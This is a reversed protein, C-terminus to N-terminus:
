EVAGPNLCSRLADVAGRDRDLEDLIESLTKTNGSEDLQYKRAELGAQPGAASEHERAIAGGSATDAGQPAPRRESGRPPQDDAAAERHEAYNVEEDWRVGDDDLAYRLHGTDAVAEGLDRMAAAHVATELAEPPSTGGAVAKLAHELTPDDVAIGWENALAQLDDVHSAVWANDEEAKAREFVAEQDVDAYLPEGRLEQDIAVLLLRADPLQEYTVKRGPIRQGNFEPFYGAEVATQMADDLALGRPNILKREGARAAGRLKALGMSKLDGGVDNIGGRRALFEILTEPRRPLRGSSALRDILASAVRANQEAVEMRVDHELSEIQAQPGVGDARDFAKLAENDIPGGESIDAAAGRDPSGDQGGNGDRPYVPPPPANERDPRAPAKRVDSAKGYASLLWTRAEGDYDLRVAAKHDASKLIVRNASRSKVRMRAILEPLEAADVEPHDELVHALGFGDNAGPKTNSRGYPVDIPGIESHELAAPVVGTKLRQLTALTSEWDGSVEPFEPGFPGQSAAPAGGSAEPQGTLSAGTEESLPRGAAKETGNPLLGQDRYFALQAKAWDHDSDFLERKLVPMDAATLEAARDGGADREASLDLAEREADDAQRQLSAIDDGADAEIPAGQPLEGKHGLASMGRELDGLTEAGAAPRMFRRIYADLVQGADKAALVFKGGADGGNLESWLFELQQARSPNKGFRELLAAKRAGLWQGLGFAGSTPNVATHDGGRAEAAIGAAIGYAHADDLGKAKFFDVIDQPVSARGVDIPAGGSSVAISSTSSLLEGRQGDIMQKIADSLASGHAADGAPGPEFPSAEGTEQVTEITDAAAREEPTMHERLTSRAFGALERNDMDALVDRLLVDGVKMRSAWRSQISEPMAKFILPPLHETGLHVAGGFAGGVIAGGIVQGAADGATLEEGNEAMNRAEVPLQGATLIGNILADRGIAQVVTSATGGGIALTPIFAPEHQANETFGAALGAVTRGVMGGRALVAAGAARKDAQQKEFYQHLGEVTDPVGPLFDPRRAREARIRDVILQEQLPRDARRNISFVSRDGVGAATALSSPQGIGLANLLSFRDDGDPDPFRVPNESAPLGLADLIPAYGESIKTSDYGSTSRLAEPKAAHFLDGFSPPAKFGDPGAPTVPQLEPAAEFVDALTGTNGSQYPQPGSV